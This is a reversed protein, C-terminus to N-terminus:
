AYVLAWVWTVLITGTWLAILAVPMVESLRYPNFRDVWPIARAPSFRESHALFPRTLDIPLDHGSRLDVAAPDTAGIPPALAELQRAASRWLEQADYTRHLLLAWIIAILIGFGGLLTTVGAFLVPHPLLNTVLVIFGTFQVAAITAFSSTRASALQGEEAALHEYKDHLWRREDATLENVPRM